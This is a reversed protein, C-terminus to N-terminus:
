KIQTSETIRYLSGYWSTMISKGPARCKYSFEGCPNYPDFHYSNTSSGYACKMEVPVLKINGYDDYWPEDGHDCRFYSCEDNDNPLFQGNYRCGLSYFM